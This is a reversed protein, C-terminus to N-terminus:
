EKMSANFREYHWLTFSIVKLSEMENLKHLVFGLEWVFLRFYLSTHYESQYKHSKSLM